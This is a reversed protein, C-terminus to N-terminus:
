STGLFDSVDQSCAVPRISKYFNDIPHSEANNSVSGDNRFYRIYWSLFEEFDVEGSGDQDIEKWFQLVRSAPMELSHGAHDHPVKILKYLVHHFEELDIHGSGDHDGHDFEHKIREVEVLSVEYKRSINRLHRQEQSLLVDEMFSHASFWKAFEEFDLENDGDQDADLIGVRLMTAPIERECKHSLMKALMQQFEFQSVSGNKNTDAEDWFWKAFRVDEVPMNLENALRVIQSADCERPIKLGLGQLPDVMVEGTNETEESRSEKPKKKGKKKMETLSVSKRGKPSAKNSDLAEVDNAIKSGVQTM